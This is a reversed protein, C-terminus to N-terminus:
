QDITRYNPRNRRHHAVTGVHVRDIRPSRGVREALREVEHPHATREVAPRLEARGPPERKRRHRPVHPEVRRDRALNQELAAPRLLDHKPAPVEGEDGVTFPVRQPALAPRACRPDEIELTLLDAVSVLDKAMAASSNRRRQDASGHAEVVGCCAIEDLGQGRGDMELRGSGCLRLPHLCCEPQHGGFGPLSAGAALRHDRAKCVNEDHLRNAEPELAIRHRSRTPEASELVPVDAAREREDM